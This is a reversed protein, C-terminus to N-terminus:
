MGNKCYVQMGLVYINQLHIMKEFPKLFLYKPCGCFSGKTEKTKFREQGKMTLILDFMCTRLM